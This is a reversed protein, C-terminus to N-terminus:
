TDGRAFEALGEYAMARVDRDDYYTSRESLVRSAQAKCWKAIRKAEACAPCNDEPWEAGDDNRHPEPEPWAPIPLGGPCGDECHDCHEPM